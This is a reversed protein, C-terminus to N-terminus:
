SDVSSKCKEIDKNGAHYAGLVSQLGAAGGQSAPAFTPNRGDRHRIERKGGDVALRLREEAKARELTQKFQRFDAETMAVRRRRKM